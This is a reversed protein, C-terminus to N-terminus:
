ALSAVDVGYQVVGLLNGAPDVFDLSVGGPIAHYGEPIPVGHSELHSRVAAVDQVRFRPQSGQGGAGIHLGLDINAVRVRVWHPLDDEIVTGGMVDRYFAALVAVDPGSVLLHDLLGLRPGDAM